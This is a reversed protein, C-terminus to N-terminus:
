KRKLTESPLESFMRRYDGAFQGMHWFGWRNAADVVGHNVRSSVRLRKRVQNLRYAQIYAKPTLGFKEQFAYQLTRESVGAVSYLWSATIPVHAHEVIADCARSLAQSRKRLEPVREKVSVTRSIAQVLKMPLSERLVDDLSGQTFQDLSGGLRNFCSLCSARLDECAEPSLSIVEQSQILRSVDADGWRELARDLLHMELSFTVVDFSDNSVSQMERADPFVLLHNGGVDQRRWNLALDRNVPIVFTRMGKPSEGHQELKRNFRARGIQAGAVGCQQLIGQFGGRDLQMFDLQWARAADAFADFDDFSADVFFRFPENAPSQKM